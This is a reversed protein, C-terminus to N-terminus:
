ESIFRRRGNWIPGKSDNRVPKLAWLHPGTRDKFKGALQISEEHILQRKLAITTVIIVGLAIVFVGGIIVPIKPIKKM